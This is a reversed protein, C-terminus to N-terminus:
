HIAHTSYLPSIQRELTADSIHFTRQARFQFAARRTARHNNAQQVPPPFPNGSSSASAHNQLASMLLSCLPFPPVPVLMTTLLICFKYKM